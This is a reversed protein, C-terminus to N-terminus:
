VVPAICSCKSATSSEYQKGAYLSMNTMADNSKGNVTILEMGQLWSSVIKMVLKRAQSGKLGTQSHHLAQTVMTVGSM